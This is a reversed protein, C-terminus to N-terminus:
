CGHVERLKEQTKAGCVGDVKLKNDCQFEEVASRFRADEDQGVPGADYGLNNLRGKQGTVTDVPDLHGIRIPMEVGVPARPDDVRLRVKEAGVPITEELLGDAGAELEYADGGVHLVCRAHALPDFAADMLVLRLKLGSRRVKFRHRLETSGPLEKAEREPIHLEDGPCLIGPDKRKNKLEANEPHDWIARYDAFGFASAILALHEGQKVTHSPM